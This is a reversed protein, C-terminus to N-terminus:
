IGTNLELMCTLYELSSATELRFLEDLTLHNEVKSVEVEIFNGNVYRYGLIDREFNNEVMVMNPQEVKNSLVSIGTVIKDDNLVVYTYINVGGKM